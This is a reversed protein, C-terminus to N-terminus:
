FIFQQLTDREVWADIRTEDVAGTTANYKGVSNIKVYKIVGDSVPKTKRDIKVWRVSGDTINDDTYMIDGNWDYLDLVEPTLTKDSRYEAKLWYKRKSSIIIITAALAAAAILIATLRDKM